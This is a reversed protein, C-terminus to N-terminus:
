FAAGPGINSFAQKAHKDTRRSITHRIKFLIAKKDRWGPCDNILASM